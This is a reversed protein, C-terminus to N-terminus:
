NQGNKDGEVRNRKLDEVMEAMAEEAIIELVDDVETMRKARKHEKSVERWVLVAALLLVGGLILVTM